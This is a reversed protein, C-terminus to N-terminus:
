PLASRATNFVMGQSVQVHRHPKFVGHKLEGRTQPVSSSPGLRPLPAPVFPPQCSHPHARRAKGRVWAFQMTDAYVPSITYDATWSNVSFAPGEVVRVSHLWFAPLVLVDGPGM